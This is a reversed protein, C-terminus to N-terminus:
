LFSYIKKEQVPPKLPVFRGFTSPRGGRLPKRLAIPSAWASRKYANGLGGLGIARFFLSKEVNEFFSFAKKERNEEEDGNLFSNRMSSADSDWNANERIM